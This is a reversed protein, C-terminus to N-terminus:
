TKKLVNGGLDRNRKEKEKRTLELNRKIMNAFDDNSMLDEAKNEEPNSVDGVIPGNKQPEQKIPPTSADNKNSGDTNLPTNENRSPTSTNKIGVDPKSMDIPGTVNKTKVGNIDSINVPKSNKLKRTRARLIDLDSQVGNQNLDVVCYIVPLLKDNGNFAQAAWGRARPEVDFTESTLEWSEISDLRLLKWKPVGRKTDGYYQYARVAENNAKTLGYVYPEIYRVGTHNNSKDAKSKYTILVGLRKNIAEEVKDGGISENLVGENLYIVM